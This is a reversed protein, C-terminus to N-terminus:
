LEDHLRAMEDYLKDTQNHVKEANAFNSYSFVVFQDCIRLQLTLFNRDVGGSLGTEM